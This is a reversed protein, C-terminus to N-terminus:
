PYSKLTRPKPKLVKHEFTPNLIQPPNLYLSSPELNLTPLVSILTYPRQRKAWTSEEINGSLPLTVPGSLSCARALSLSSSSPAPPPPLSLSIYIYLSLSRVKRHREAWLPEEFHLAEVCVVNVTVASFDVSEIVELEAGEVDLM